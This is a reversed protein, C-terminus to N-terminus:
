AHLKFFSPSHTDFSIIGSPSGQPPRDVFRITPFWAQIPWCTAILCLRVKDMMVKNLVAQILPTPPFACANMGDWSVALANVANLAKPDPLPTM